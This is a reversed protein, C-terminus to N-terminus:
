RAFWECSKKEGAMWVVDGPEFRFDARPNTRHENGRLVSVVMCCSERMRLDRLTKGALYSNEELTVVDVTFEMEERQEGGRAQEHQRLMETLASLQATTGVALLHDGPYVPEDASPILIARSGRTIKIINVGSSAWLPIDRLAKGIYQFDPSVDIVQLHVDYGALKDQVQTSVPKLRRELVEKENLNQMFREELWTTKHVIRKALFFLVLLLVALVPVGWGGMTVHATVVTMIFSVAILMRLVMLALIPWRNTDKEKLLKGAYKNISGNSVALGFIFPSMLALSVAMELYGRWTAAMAPLLREALPDLYRASVLLLAVLAVTYLLVRLAYSRLLAKWLSKEAASEPRSAADAPTLRALVAPPLKRQLWAIVPDAAKIMYPTTFTTLVSVTIIVPYIFDRMVGLSCGLSAIIFSFEGLQALSFGAHLATDLGKGALLAGTSSWILIGGMAVLAIVLISGWHAAIVAPDIMMGVSVFFIAGFLDKISGMLKTIRAEEVTESLISGMVFAGLASSFGAASALAVMGFCLGISLLLLIEDNLFRRMRKFLTPILYIGVLFWLIIFFALKVLSWVMEGGAFKRSVAMTSLLVMLLVAILDEFVLSGFVLTAYPKNKLGMDNYAKIIITTSSMSLMGGLFVGEMATWGMANGTVLGVIFMGICQTGATILASSGVALLKKFSFELGLAFLLFIIGIESWQKVEEVSSIQPFLGLHPSVIFGAVIYGLILPQKLAKSILTFVGAAILIVALDSVLNLEEAM